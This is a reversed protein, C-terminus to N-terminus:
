GISFFFSPFPLPLAPIAGTSTYVYMTPNEDMALDKLTTVFAGVSAFTIDKLTDLAGDHAVFYPQTRLVTFLTEARFCCM